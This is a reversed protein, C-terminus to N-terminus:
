ILAELEDYLGEIEDDLAKVEMGLIRIKETDKAVCAKTLQDSIQVKKKELKEIAKEVKKLDAELKRQRKKEEKKDLYDQKGKSSQLSDNDHLSMEDSFGMTKLFKEYGMDLNYIRGGDFLILRTAVQAILEENHSVFLVTGEFIKLSNALAECSEMDLHNTPEDLALLHNSHLLVKGLCVRSKEGGSLTSISKKASEGTFLLSASVNRAQQETIGSASTILEELITKQPSLEDKSDMGFYGIKLAPNHRIKGSNPELHKTLLKLLTSKGKGNRGIIAVREGNLISLSFDQVLPEAPDYAFNLHKVEMLSDARFLESRFNFKIQPLHVLKEGIDQKALSKIRSQVLGASRAGARFTQIFKETKERKKVQNQRTKEHVREELEIQGMLKTPGGPMKRMRGRHIAITHTVVEEMFHRDHTILMFATKWSKLFRSLWRLSLIDLYNTPEDLLLLDCDSVLAEALRIRIQFGSSFESPHRGFDEQSFGLGMLISEAKWQENVGSEPLRSAVQRLITAGEAFDLHQELAQIKFDTPLKVEGEQASDEGLLIKFFTSKGSGNRGILGIKEKAHLSLNVDTFIDQQGFFKTLHSIHIM